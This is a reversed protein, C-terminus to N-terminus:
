SRFGEHCNNCAKDMEGAAQRAQEYNNQLAADRVSVAQAQMAKAYELYTGDEAFEYGAHTIVEALAAILQAEHVLEDAHRELERQNAVRAQISKHAQELRKMLPQRDAVQPWTPKDSADPLKLRGGRVLTQLEEARTKAESYSGDTGVKCNFGARAVQDRLAAAADQWRITGDYEAVIGFMVALVSLTERAKQFDGAKFTTANQITQALDMQRAKIEDEVAEPSIWQKWGVGSAALTPLPTAPNAATGSAPATGPAAAPQPRPGVLKERADPFFADRISKSFKPPRARRPPGAALAEHTAFGAAAALTLLAFIRWGSWNRPPRKTPIM